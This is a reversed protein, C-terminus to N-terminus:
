DDDNELNDISDDKDYNNFPSKENEGTKDNEFPNLNQTIYIDGSYSTIGNVIKGYQNCFYPKISYKFYTNLPYDSDTFVINETASAKISAILEETADKNIRYVFYNLYPAGKFSLNVNGNSIETELDTVSFNTFYTSLADPKTTNTFLESKCFEAPTDISAVLIEQKCLQAYLDIDVQVINQTPELPLPQNNTYFRNLIYKMTKTTYAGGTEKLSMNEDTNGSSNGHWVLATHSSTYAINYADTNGSDNGVTGTKSYVEFPLGKLSRATGMTATDNLIDSIIYANEESMVQTKIENNRYLLRGSSDSISKIFTPQQYAGYNALMAYCACIESFNLGNSINGLALTANNDIDSLTINLKKAFESVKDFGLANYTKVSAINSSQMIATRVDIWGLYKDGFNKPSYGSFDVKEDLIPTAATILNNEFAPAYVLIPKLTSGVPRRFNTLQRNQSSTYAVIGCTQNELLLATREPPTQNKNTAFFEKSDIATNLIQQADSDFYTSITYGNALLTQPSINLISAAEYVASKLYSDNFQVQANTQLCIDEAIANDRTEESIFGQEAMLKLVLNRRSKSNEIDNQPSYKQPNKLVAVLTACESVSLEGISKNFFNKSANSIGYIGNGFYIVNLYMALIEKKSYNKELDKAIKLEKIKREFTKEHSLHTNKILQQSITSGGESLKGNAINNKLAGAIRIYDIGNHKYFRKDEVAIFANELLQPIEDPSVGLTSNNEIEQQNCDLFVSQSTVNPLLNKDLKADKTIIKYYTVGVSALVVTLAIIIITMIKIFKKM